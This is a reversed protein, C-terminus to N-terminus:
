DPLLRWHRSELTMAMAERQLTDAHTLLDTTRGSWHSNQYSCWATSLSAAAMLIACVADFWPSKAEVPSASEPTSPPASEEVPSSATEPM